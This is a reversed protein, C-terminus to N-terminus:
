AVCVCVCVWLGLYMTVCLSVCLGKMFGCDHTRRADYVFCCFCKVTIVSFGSCVGRVWCRTM